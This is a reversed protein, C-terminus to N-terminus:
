KGLLTKDITLVIGYALPHRHGALRAFHAAADLSVVLRHGLHVAGSTADLTRLNREAHWGIAAAVEGVFVVFAAAALNTGLLQGGIVLVPLNTCVLVPHVVKALYDIGLLIIALAAHAILVPRLAVVRGARAASNRAM